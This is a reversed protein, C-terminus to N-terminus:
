HIPVARFFDLQNEGQITLKESLAERDYLINIKEGYGIKMPLSEDSIQERYAIPPPDFMIISASKENDEGIKAVVHIHFYAITIDFPSANTISAGIFKKENKNSVLLVMNVHPEQRKRQRIDSTIAIYSQSVVSVAIVLTLIVMMENPTLSAM